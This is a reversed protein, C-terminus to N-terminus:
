SVPSRGSLRLDSPMHATWPLRDTFGDALGVCTRVKCRGGGASVARPRPIGPSAPRQKERSPTGSRRHSDPQKRSHVSMYRVADPAPVPAYPATRARTRHDRIGDRTRPSMATRAPSTAMNDRVHRGPAQQCLTGLAVATVETLVQPGSLSLWGPPCASAKTAEAARADSETRAAPPLPRLM